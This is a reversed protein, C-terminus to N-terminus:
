LESMTMTQLRRWREDGYSIDFVLVVRIFAYSLIRAVYYGILWALLRFPGVFCTAVVSASHEFLRFTSFM